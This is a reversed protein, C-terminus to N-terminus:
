AGSVADVAPTAVAAAPAEGDEKQAPTSGSKAARFDVTKNKSDAGPKGNPVFTPATANLGKSFQGPLVRGAPHSFTCDARTCAAGFRCPTNSKAKYKASPHYYPCNVRTCHPDFKCPIQSVHSPQPAAPVPAAAVTIFRPPRDSPHSRICSVTLLFGRLCPRVPLRLPPPTRPRKASTRRSATRTTATSARRAPTRVSCSARNWRPLPAPTATAAHLTTATPSSSASPLLSPANLSIPQSQPPYKSRHQPSSSPHNFPSRQQHSRLQGEMSEKGTRREGGQVERNDDEGDDVATERSDEEVM